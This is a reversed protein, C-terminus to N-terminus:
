AKIAPKFMATFAVAILGAIPLTLVWSAVIRGVMGFKVHKVGLAAYSVFVVAGVQCHTTSVPVKVITAIVITITSALEMCFGRHINIKSIRYGITTMVRYGLSVIGVLVFFGALAMIWVPTDMKSCASLGEDNVIWVASFAATANATDNSGHAFSELAAVLILLYRFVYMADEVEESVEEVEADTDVIENVDISSKPSNAEDYVEDQAKMKDASSQADELNRNERVLSPLSAKIRPVLLFQAIAGVVVAAALGITFVLWKATKKTPKSKLMILPILIFTSLGYLFPVAIIANRRPNKSEFITYKTIYYVVLGICGSLVPSIVWSAIIATLGGKWAWNLCNAGVAYITMGVLGGVISHTTSVPMSTFTALLLFIGAGCLAGFMGVAYLAVDSDCYGCAWCDPDNVKAVGKQITSSVGYGLSVAGAWNMLGAIICAYKVSIAKSGVSTGWANAVDNAGIGFAMVFMIIFSLVLLWTNDQPDKYLGDYPACQGGNFDISCDPVGPACTLSGTTSM